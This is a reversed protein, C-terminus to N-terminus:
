QLLTPHNIDYLLTEVYMIFTNNIIEEEDNYETQIYSYHLSKHLLLKNLTHQHTSFQISVHCPITQIM